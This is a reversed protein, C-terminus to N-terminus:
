LVMEVKVLHEQLLLVAVVALDTQVKPQLLQHLATEEVAREVLVQLEPPTREVVVVALM